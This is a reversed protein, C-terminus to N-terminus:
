RSRKAAKEARDKMKQVMRKASEGEAMGHSLALVQAGTQQALVVPDNEALAAALADFGDDKGGSLSLSLAKADVYRTRLKAAVAPTIKGAAVLAEMKAGRSEGMLKVVLPDAPKGQSAAVAAGESLKAIAALIDEVSAGAELGLADAVKAAEEDTMSAAVDKDGDGAAREKLAAIAALVAAVDADAALGLAKLIEEMTRDGNQQLSAAIAQFKGLGLIVPDTCLAVHTIPRSYTNGKGDTFSVPAYISVDNSAALTNISPEDGGILDIVGVLTDGERFMDVVWGRNAEPNQAKDHGLPVPVKNGNAAWQSFTMAWHDLTDPTVTFALNQSAKFYDGVRVLEKRFRKVTAGSDDIRASSLALAPAAHIKLILVDHANTM